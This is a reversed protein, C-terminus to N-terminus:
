ISFPSSFPNISSLFLFFLLVLLVEHVGDADEVEDITLGFLNARMEQIERWIGLKQNKTFAQLDRAPPPEMM